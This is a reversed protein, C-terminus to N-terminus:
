CNEQWQVLASDLAGWELVYTYTEIDLPQTLFSKMINSVYLSHTTENQFTSTVKNGTRKM